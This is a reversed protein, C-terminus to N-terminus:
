KIKLKVLVWKEERLNNKNLQFFDHINGKKIEVSKGKYVELYKNYFDISSFRFVLNDGTATWPFIYPMGDLDNQLNAKQTTIDFESDLFIYHNTNLGQNIYLLYKDPHEKIGNRNDSRIINALTNPIKHYLEERNDFNNKRIFNFDDYDTQYSLFYLSYSEGIYFSTNNYRNKIEDILEEERDFELQRGSYTDQIYIRDDTVQFDDMQFFEGPGQGSSEIVDKMKGNEEFIFL